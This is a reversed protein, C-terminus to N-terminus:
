GNVLRYLDEAFSDAKEFVGDIFPGPIDTVQGSLWESSVEGIGDVRSLKGILRRVRGEVMADPMAHTLFIAAHKIKKDRNKLEDELKSIWLKVPPSLFFKRVAAGV